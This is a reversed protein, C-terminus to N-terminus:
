RDCGCRHGLPVALGFVLNHNLKTLPVLQPTMEYVYADTGLFLQLVGTTVCAAAGYSMGYISLGANVTLSLWDLPRANLSGRVEWWNFINDLRYTGLLGATVRDYFPMRYEAGANFTVTMPDFSNKKESQPVFLAVSGLSSAPSEKDQEGLVKAPDYRFDVSPTRAYLSDFWKIGGLDLLSASLTLNESALWKVGADASLGIGGAGIFGFPRIDLSGLDVKNLENGESDTALRYEFAHGAFEMDVDTKVRWYAESLTMELTRAHLSGYAMGLLGKVRAGVTLRGDLDYSQGYSLELWTHSKLFLDKMDFDSHLDTGAKLFEFMDYPVNVAAGSRVSVDVVHYSAGRRFGYTFLTLDEELIVPNQKKRLPKLFTETDVSGHLGTVLGKGDPSPFILHKLSLDSKVSTVSQSFLPSIFDTDNSFAPNLKYGFLYGDLFYGGRFNQASALGSLTTFVALLLITRKTKM